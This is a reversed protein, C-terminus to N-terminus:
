VAVFCLVFIVCLVVQQSAVSIDRGRINLILESIRGDLEWQGFPGNLQICDKKQKLRFRSQYIVRNVRECDAQLSQLLGVGQFQRIYGAISFLRPVTTETEDIVNIRYSLHRCLHQCIHWVSFVRCARQTKHVINPWNNQLSKDSIM